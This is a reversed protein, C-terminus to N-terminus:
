RRHSLDPRQYGQGIALDELLRVAEVESETLGTVGLYSYGSLGCDRLATMALLDTCIDAITTTM